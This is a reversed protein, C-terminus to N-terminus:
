IFAQATGHEGYNVEVALANSDKQNKMIEQCLMTSIHQHLNPPAGLNQQHLKQCIICFLELLIPAPMAIEACPSIELQGSCALVQM